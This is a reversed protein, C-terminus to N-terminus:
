RPAWWRNKKNHNRRPEDVAFAFSTPKRQGLGEAEEVGIFFWMCSVLNEEAFVVSKDPAFSSWGEIEEILDGVPIAEKHQVNEKGLEKLSKIKVNLM